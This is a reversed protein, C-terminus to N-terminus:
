AEIPTDHDPAHLYYVDVHDTGLRALSEDLSARVREPRLGEKRWWGVKTAVFARERRGALLRGLVRESEGDAYANATDFLPVGADLAREVIRRAEDEPTRRGFNM